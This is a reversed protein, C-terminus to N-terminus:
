TLPFSITFTSGAGPTSDVTLRAGMQQTLEAAIYLGLGTGGVGSRQAPDVRFFKEFIRAHLEPPIGVGQDSISITVGYADERAALGITGGNPSYKVANEVLNGIVQRLLDRDAAIEIRGAVAIDFTTSSPATM